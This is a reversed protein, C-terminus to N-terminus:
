GAIQRRLRARVARAIRTAAAAPAEHEWVRIVLWGAARLRRNTDVDRRRNDALKAAWWERNAKPSTRHIPCSHWFCGDVFVAVRSSVFALDARRRLEPLIQRDIRFRLGRAHLLRRLTVEAATDRQRTVKMRHLAEPSSAAPTDRAAV